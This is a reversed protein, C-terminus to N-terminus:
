LKDDRYLKQIHYKEMKKKLIKEKHLHYYRISRKNQMDLLESKTRNIRKRGM